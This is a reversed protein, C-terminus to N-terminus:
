SYRKDLSFKSLHKPSGNRYYDMIKKMDEELNETPYFLEKRIGSIKDKYNLYGLAIPVGANKAIHYFGSKWEEVKTRTGEATVIMVLDKNEEFLDTMYEVMSKRQEGEVKPARNIAIAGLPKTVLGFPFAVMSKKITFRIPIKMIKFTAIAFLFDWNSTHPAAILVCRKLDKPFDKDIKWGFLKMILSWFM